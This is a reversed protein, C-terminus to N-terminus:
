AVRLCGVEKLDVPVLCLRPRAPGTQVFCRERSGDCDRQIGSPSVGLPTALLNQLSDGVTEGKSLSNLALTYM